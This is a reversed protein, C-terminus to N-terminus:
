DNKNEKEENMRYTTLDYLEYVLNANVFINSIDNKVSFKNIYKEVLNYVLREKHFYCKQLDTNRNLECIGKYLEVLNNMYISESNKLIDLYRKIVVDISYNNKIDLYIQDIESRFLM